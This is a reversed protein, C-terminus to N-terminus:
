MAEGCLLGKLLRSASYMTALTGWFPTITFSAPWTVGSGAVPWSVVVNLPLGCSGNLLNESLNLWPAVAGSELGGSQPVKVASASRAGQDAGDSGRWRSAEVCIALPTCLPAQGLPPVGGKWGPRIAPVIL